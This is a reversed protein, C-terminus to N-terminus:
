YFKDYRPAPADAISILLTTAVVYCTVYSCPLVNFIVKENQAYSLRTKLHKITTNNTM